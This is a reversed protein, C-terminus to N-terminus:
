KFICKIHTQLKARRRSAEAGPLSVIYKHSIGRVGSESYLCCVIERTYLFYAFMYYTTRYHM